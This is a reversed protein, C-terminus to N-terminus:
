EEEDQTKEQKMYNELALNQALEAFKRNLHAIQRNVQNIYLFSTLIGIVLVTMIADQTTLIPMIISVLNTNYFLSTMSAWVLSWFMTKRLGSEGRRYAYITSALLYLGVLIGLIQIGKIM